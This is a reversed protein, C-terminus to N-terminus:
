PLRLLLALDQLGRVVASPSVGACRPDDGRLRLSRRDGAFLCTRFGARSAPLIDNLVDNGVFLTRGAPIGRRALRKRALDFLVQSPKARGLRYSYLRLGRAFGLRADSLGWFAEFLLPTYFQANSVLGLTVGRARLSETLERAFPM